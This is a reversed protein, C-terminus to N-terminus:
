LVQTCGSRQHLPWSKGEWPYLQKVVEVDKGSPGIDNLDAFIFEANDETVESPPTFDKGGNKWKVLPATKVSWQGGKWGSLSAYHMISKVDYEESAAVTYHHQYGDDKGDKDKHFIEWYEETSYDYARFGLSKWPELRGYVTSTCLKAISM